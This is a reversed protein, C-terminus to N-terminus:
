NPLSLLEFIVSYFKNLAIIMGFQHIWQFIQSDITYKSGNIRISSNYFPLFLLCRYMEYSGYPISRCVRTWSCLLYPILYRTLTLMRSWDTVGAGMIKILCIPYDMTFFWHTFLLRVNPIFCTLYCKVAHCNTYFQCVLDVM